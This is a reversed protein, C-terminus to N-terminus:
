APVELTLCVAMTKGGKVCHVSWGEFDPFCVETPESEEVGDHLTLSPLAYEHGDVKEEGTSLPYIRGTNGWGDFHFAAVSDGLKLMYGNGCVAAGQRLVKVTVEDKM